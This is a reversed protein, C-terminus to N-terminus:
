QETVIQCNHVLILSADSSTLKSRINAKLRYSQHPSLELAIYCLWHLAPEQLRPQVVEGKSM